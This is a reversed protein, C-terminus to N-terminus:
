SAAFGPATTGQWVLEEGADSRLSPNRTVVVHASVIEEIGSRRVPLLEGNREDIEFVRLGSATMRDVWGAASLGTSRIHAPEFDMVLLLGPHSALVGQMGELVKLEWGEVSIKVVDPVVDSLLEDLPVVTAVVSAAQPESTVPPALLTSQRCNTMVSLTGLGREAGAAVQEIRVVSELANARVTARLASATVPSPEIAIVKGSPGAVRAALLSFLGVNAGVDVFTGGPRLHKEIFKLTGQRPLAGDAYLGITSLDDSPVALYGLPNRCLVFGHAPLPIVSRSQLHSLKVATRDAVVQGRQAEENFLKRTSQVSSATGGEVLAHVQETTPLEALRAKLGSAHEVVAGTVGQLGQSIQTKMDSLRAQVNAAQEAVTGHVAQLGDSVQAKVAAVEQLLLASNMWGQIEEGTPMAALRSRVGDIQSSTEYSFKQLTSSLESRSKVVEQVLTGGNVLGQIQEGSPLTALQEHFRASHASITEQVKQLGDVLQTWASALEKAITGGNVLAHVQDTTPLSSLRAAVDSTQRAVAENLGNLTESMHAKLAEVQRSVSDLDVAAQIDAALPLAAIRGDIGAIREGIMEGVDRLAGAFETRTAALTRALGSDEVLAKVKEADPLASLQERMDVGQMALVQQVKQLENVVQVRTAALGQAVVGESIIAHVQERTPLGSVLERTRAGEEGLHQATGSVGDLIETKATALDSPLSRLAALQSRVDGLVRLTEEQAKGVGDNQSSLRALVDDVREFMAQHQELVKLIGSQNRSLEAVQSGVSEIASSQVQARGDLSRLQETVPASTLNDRVWKWSRRAGRRLWSSGSGPEQPSSGFM